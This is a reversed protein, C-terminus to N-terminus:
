DPFVPQEIFANMNVTEKPKGYMYEFWMKVAWSKNDKIAEYLANYADEQLPTLREILKAEEAKPKRGAGNRKGGHGKAM